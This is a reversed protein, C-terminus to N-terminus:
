IINNMASMGTQSGESRDAPCVSRYTEMSQGITRQFNKRSFARRSSLFSCPLYPPFHVHSPFTIANILHARLSITIDRFFQNCKELCFRFMSMSSCFQLSNWSFRRISQASFHEIDLSLYHQISGDDSWETYVFVEFLVWRSDVDYTKDNIIDFVWSQSQSNALNDRFIHSSWTLPYIQKSTGKQNRWNLVVATFVDSSMSHFHDSPPSLISSRIPESDVRPVAVPSLITLKKNTNRTLCFKWLFDVLHVQLNQIEMPRHISSSRISSVTKLKYCWIECTEEAYNSPRILNSEFLSDDSTQWFLPCNDIFVEVDIFTFMSANSNPCRASM